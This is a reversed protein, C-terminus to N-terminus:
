STLEWYCCDLIRMWAILTDDPYGHTDRDLAGPRHGDLHPNASLCASGHFHAPDTGLSTRLDMNGAEAPNFHGHLQRGTIAQRHCWVNRELPLPYGRTSGPLTDLRISVQVTHSYEGAPPSCLDQHGRHLWSGHHLEHCATEGGNDQLSSSSRGTHGRNEGPIFDMGIPYPMHYTHHLAHHSLTLSPLVVPLPTQTAPLSTPFSIDPTRTAPNISQLPETATIGAEDATLLRTNGSEAFSLVFSGLVLLLSAVVMLLGTLVQRVSHM